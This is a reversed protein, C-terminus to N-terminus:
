RDAGGVLAGPRLLADVLPVSNSAGRLDSAHRPDDAPGVLGNPWRAWPLEDEPWRMERGTSVDGMRSAAFLATLTELSPLNPALGALWGSNWTHIVAIQSARSAVDSPMQLAWVDAREHQGLPTSTVDYTSLPGAVLVDGDADLVLAQAASHVSGWLVTSWTSTRGVLLGSTTELHVESCIRHGMHLSRDHKVGIATM